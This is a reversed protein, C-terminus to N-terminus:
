LTCLNFVHIDTTGRIASQAQALAEESVFFLICGLLLLQLSGNFYNKFQM